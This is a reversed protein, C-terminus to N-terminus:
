PRFPNRCLHAPIEGWVVVERKSYELGSEDVAFLLYDGAPVSQYDFSGDSDTQFGPAAPASANESVPALVVLMGEAGKEGRMVFGQIRGTEDRLEVGEVRVESAFYGHTGRVVPRYKGPAVGSFSITGDPRM